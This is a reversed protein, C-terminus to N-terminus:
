TYVHKSGNNEENLLEQDDVCERIYIQVSVIYDIVECM